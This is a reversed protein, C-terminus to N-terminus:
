RWASVQVSPGVSLVQKVHGSESAKFGRTSQEGGTLVRCDPHAIIITSQRVLEV